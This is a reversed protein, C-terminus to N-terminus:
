GYKQLLAKLQTLGRMGCFSNKNLDTTIEMHAMM